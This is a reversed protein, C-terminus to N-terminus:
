NPDAGLGRLNFGQVPLGAVRWGLDGRKHAFHGILCHESLWAWIRLFIGWFVWALGNFAFLLLALPLQQAM